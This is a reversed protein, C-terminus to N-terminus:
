PTAQLTELVQNMQQAQGDLDSTDPVIEEASPLGDQSSSAEQTQVREANRQIILSERDGNGLGCAALLLVLSVILILVTRKM